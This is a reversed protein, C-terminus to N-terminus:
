INSSIAQLHQPNKAIDQVLFNLFKGLIPDRQPKEVRSIWLKGNPEITYCIKIM